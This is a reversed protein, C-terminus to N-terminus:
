LRLIHNLVLIKKIGLCTYKKNEFEAKNKYVKWCTVSRYSYWMVTINTDLNSYALIFLGWM